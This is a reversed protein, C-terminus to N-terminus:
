SEKIKTILGDISKFAKRFFQYRQTESVGSILISKRIINNLWQETENCYNINSTSMTNFTQHGLYVQKTNGISVLVCNNTIEIESFYVSYNEQNVNKFEESIFKKGLEAQKQIDTIEQKLDDCVMLADDISAFMGSDWYFGIQKVTSAVTTDTWIEVSPISTYLEFIQNAMEKFKDSIKSADFKKDELSPINMISKMWYFMKYASLVPYKYNHFVPIDEAAYIIRSEKASNIIKLDNILNSLFEEFSHEEKNMITYNFTVNGSESHSFSDFSIKFHDCLKIIDGISLATESRIRRYASDISIELIDSLEYVLSSNSPIIDEIKKLFQLQISDKNTTQM